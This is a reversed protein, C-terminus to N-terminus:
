AQETQPLGLANASCIPGRKTPRLSKWCRNFLDSFRKATFGTLETLERYSLLRTKIDREETIIKVVVLVFMDKEDMSISFARCSRLEEGLRRKMDAFAGDRMKCFTTEADHSELLMGGVQRAM